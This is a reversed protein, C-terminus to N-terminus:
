AFGSRAKALLEGRTGLLRLSADMGGSWAPVDRGFYATNVLLGDGTLLYPRVTLSQGPACSELQSTTWEGFRPTGLPDVLLEADAAVEYWVVDDRGGPESFVFSWEQGGASARISCTVMGVRYEGAPVELADDLAEFGVASGDHGILLANLYSVEAEADALKPLHLRIRGTGTLAEIELSEGLPDSKLAYREEGFTVIPAFAFLEEFPQFAGDGDLDVLLTDRHSTFFGDADGDVRRARAVREGIAVEGELYGMTAISLLGGLSGLSLAVRRPVFRPRGEVETAVALEALWRGDDGRPVLEHAEIRRNRDVDLYLAASGVGTQDVLVTVRTSGPDGYRLQGFRAHGQIEVGVTVDEPADNAVPVAAPPPSEMAEGPAPVRYSWDAGAMAVMWLWGFM